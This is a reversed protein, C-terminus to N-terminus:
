LKSGQRTGNIYIADIKLSISISGDEEREWTGVLAGGTETGKTGMDERGTRDDSLVREILTAIDMESAEGFPNRFDRPMNKGCTTNQPNNLYPVKM